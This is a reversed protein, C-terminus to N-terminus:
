PGVTVQLRWLRVLAPCAQRPPCLVSGTASVTAQGSGSAILDADLQGSTTRVVDTVEIIRSDSMPTQWDFGPDLVIHITIGARTAVQCQGESTIAVDPSVVVGCGNGVGGTGATTTTSGTTTSTVGTTPPTASHHPAVATTGCSVTLAAIGLVVLRGLLGAVSPM